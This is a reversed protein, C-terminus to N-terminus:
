IKVDFSSLPPVRVREERFPFHTSISKQCAPAYGAALAHRVYFFQVAPIFVFAQLDNADRHRGSVARRPLLPLWLDTGADPVVYQPAQIPVLEPFIFLIVLVDAIIRYENV